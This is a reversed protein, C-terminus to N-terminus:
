SVNALSELNDSGTRPAHISILLLRNARLCRQPREGHPSRPNFHVAELAQPVGGKRREGHPSRPNFDDPSPATKRRNGDSGTRPAHISIGSCHLHLCHSVDSGTRPAHISIMNICWVSIIASTAGRAPLTSQFLTWWSVRCHAATAGRAPLTSQFQPQVSITKSRYADSGTRPAHISIDDIFGQVVDERTAGRAPLTSQFQISARYKGVAATAGRAPLTSQFAGHPYTLVMGSVDSGTRPAHISISSARTAASSPPDSGTRPAHISIYINPPTYCDDTTDSGTRPAHISIWLTPTIGIKQATTAGRAPLTSQFQAATTDKTVM